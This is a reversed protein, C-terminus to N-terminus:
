RKACDLAAADIASAAGRLRYVDAFGGLPGVSQVSMSSGRRLAAVINADAIRDRPWADFGRAALEFTSDGVSLTVRARGRPVRSLRVHVQRDIGQKPWYSVSISARGAGREPEAPEAIAFCVPGNEHFAGWDNFVAITDRAVAAEATLLLALIILPLALRMMDQRIALSNGSQL